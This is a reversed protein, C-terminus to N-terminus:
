NLGEGSFPHSSDSTIVSVATSTPVLNYTGGPSICTLGAASTTGSATAQENICLDITAGKPNTLFGGATRHGATLATVATGGTTVTSVDLAVITRQGPTTTVGGISNTGAPIAGGTNNAITKVIAVVSGSGSSWASDAKAGLAVDAGDAIAVPLPNSSSAPTAGDTGNVTASLAVGDGNPEGAPSVDVNVTGTAPPTVASIVLTDSGDLHGCSITYTSGSAFSFQSGVQSNVACNVLQTTTGGNSSEKTTVVITGTWTGSFLIKASPYGDITATIPTSVSNTFTGTTDIGAAESVPLGSLGGSVTVPLSSGYPVFCPGINSSPCTYGGYTSGAALLFGTVSQQATQAFAGQIPLLLVLAIFGGTRLLKKFM